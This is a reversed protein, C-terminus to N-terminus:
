CCQMMKLLDIGFLGGWTGEGMEDVAVVGVKLGVDETFGGM